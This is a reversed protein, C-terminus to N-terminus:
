RALYKARLTEADLVRGEAIEERAQNIEKLAQPDSLLDLTDEIAELDDPSLLIAAPRGNRTLVVRDHQHEVRDVVESLHAKIHALSFTETMVLIITM